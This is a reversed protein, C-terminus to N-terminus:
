QYGMGSAIEAPTKVGESKKKNFLEELDKRLGQKPDPISKLSTKGLPGECSVQGNM